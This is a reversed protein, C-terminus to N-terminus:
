CFVAADRAMTARCQRRLIQTDTGRTGQLLKLRKATASRKGISLLADQIGERTLAADLAAGGNNAAHLLEASKSVGLLALVLDPQAAVQAALTFAWHRVFSRVADVLAAGLVRGRRRGVQEGEGDVGERRRAM